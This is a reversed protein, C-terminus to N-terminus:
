MGLISNLFMLLDIGVHMHSAEGLVQDGAEHLLSNNNILCWLQFPLSATGSM